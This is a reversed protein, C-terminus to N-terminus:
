ESEKTTTTDSRMAADLRDKWYREREDLREVFSDNLASCRLAHLIAGVFILWLVIALCTV